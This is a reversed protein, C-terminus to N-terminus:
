PCVASTFSFPIVPGFGVGWPISSCVIECVDSSTVDVAPDAATAAANDVLARLLATVLASRVGHGMVDCIFIGARTDSLPLVSFFDGALESAPYFRHVFRLASDEPAASRPFAREHM